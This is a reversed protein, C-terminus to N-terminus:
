QDMWIVILQVFRINEHQSSFDRFPCNNISHCVFLSCVVHRYQFPSNPGDMRTTIEAKTISDYSIDQFVSLQFV